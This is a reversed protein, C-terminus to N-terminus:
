RIALVARHHLDAAAAKVRVPEPFSFAETLRGDVALVQKLEDGM